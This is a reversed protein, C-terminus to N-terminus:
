SQAVKDKLKQILSDINSRSLISGFESRQTTIMSVGEAVIDIIMYKGAADKQVKYNVNISPEDESKIETQVLFFDKDEATTNIIAIKQNTYNKFKPVYSKLLFKRYSDSYEAKQQPTIDRGYSGIVFKAIWNINVSSEFLETLKQEKVEDTLKSSVIELTTDGVKKIFQNAGDTGTAPKANANFALTLLFLIISFIRV